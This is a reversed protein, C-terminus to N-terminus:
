VGGKEASVPSGPPLEDSPPLEGLLVLRLRRVEAILRPVADRAAAVFRANRIKMAPEHWGIAVAFPYPNRAQHKKPLGKRAGHKVLEVPPHFEWGTMVDGRKGDLPFNAPYARRCFEVGDPVAVWPGPTAASALADWETLEQESM